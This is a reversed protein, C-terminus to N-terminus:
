RSSSLVSKKYSLFRDIGSIHSSPFLFLVCLSAIEILNKNVIWYSGEAHTNIGAGVLPPYAFYYLLLLIIGAIKLPKSFLGIFLGLGIVVLGWMNLMDVFALLSESRSLSRFLPALPGIAGALYSEATWNPTFVKILGEYLFHWGILVRLFTLGFIQWNSYNDEIRNKKIEIM